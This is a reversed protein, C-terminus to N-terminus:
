VQRSNVAHHGPRRGRTIEVAFARYDICEELRNATAQDGGRVVARLASQGDREGLARDGVTFRHATGVDLERLPAVEGRACHQKALRLPADDHTRAVGCPHRRDRLTVANGRVFDAAHGRLRPKADRHATARDIRWERTERAQVVLRNGRDHSSAGRLSGYGLLVWRYSRNLGHSLLVNRPARPLRPAWPACGRAGRSGRAGRAAKSILVEVM